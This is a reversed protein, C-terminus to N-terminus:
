PYERAGSLQFPALVRELDHLLEFGQDIGLTHEVRAHDEVVAWIHTAQVHRHIKALEFAHTTNYWSPVM